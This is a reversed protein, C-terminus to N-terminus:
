WSQALHFRCGIIQVEGQWVEEISTHIATEFDIVITKPNLTYGMSNCKQKLMYLMTSYTCKAKNKLLCFVVPVYVDNFYAHITFLQGFFKTCFEFTGNMYLTTQQCLFEINTNCSFLVINESLDNCLMFPEEKSTKLNISNLFMQVEETTKPLKPVLQLRARNMNNRIYRVDTVSISGLAEHQLHLEKRILKAPKVSIDEQAKRKVSNSVKQRNLLEQNYDHNHTGEKRSFVESNLTYVKAVCNKKTCRWVTEESSKLVRFKRFKYNEFILLLQGRESLMTEFKEM